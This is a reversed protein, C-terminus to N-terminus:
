ARAHHAALVADRLSMTLVHSYVHGHRERAGLAHLPQKAIGLDIIITPYQKIDQLWLTINSTRINVKIKCGFRQM